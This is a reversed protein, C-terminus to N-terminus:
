LPIRQHSSRSPHVLQNLYPLQERAADEGTKRFRSAYHYDRWTCPGFRPTIVLDAEAAHRVSTDLQLMDLSEMLIDLMRIRKRKPTGTQPNEGPWAPLTDRSLLNVAITIDAGANRVAGTPVPVLTLADVLLQAGREFPPVLGPVAMAAYVADFISGESIAVPRKAILDATMISLPTRLDSFTHGRTWRKLDRLVHELGVSRGDLSMKLMERVNASKFIDQLATDIEKASMGSALLYGILAGISSGALYDIIFGAEELVELVGLHAYGRAGGAGLAMGLKTRSLHRGLWAVDRQPDRPDLTRVVKIGPRHEEFKSAACVEIDVRLDALGSLCENLADAHGVFLIRDVHQLLLHLQPEDTGVCVLVLEHGALLKGKASLFAETSSAEWDAEWAGSGRGLKIAVTKQTSAAKTASITAPVHSQAGRSFVLAVTERHTRDQGLRITSARLRQILIRNLNISIQPYVTLFRAYKAENLELLEVPTRAVVDATRPEDVLVSLEGIVDGEQLLAVSIIGGPRRFLVELLGKKVVYLSKGREGEKCVTENADFCRLEMDRFIEELDESTLGEFIAATNRNTAAQEM